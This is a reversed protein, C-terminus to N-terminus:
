LYHFSDYRAFKVLGYALKDSITKADKHLVKPFDAFHPSINIECRVQVARMEEPTYVPHFLVWDGRVMTPVTSVADPKKLQSTL